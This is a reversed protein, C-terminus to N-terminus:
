NFYKSISLRHGLQEKTCISQSLFKM